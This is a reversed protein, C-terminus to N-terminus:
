QHTKLQIWEDYITILINLYKESLQYLDENDFLNNVIKYNDIEGETKEGTETIFSLFQKGEENPESINIERMKNIYDEANFNEPITHISSVVRHTEIPNKHITTTRLENIFKFLADEDATLKRNAYWQKFKKDKGFEKRLVWLISRSASIFASLYYRFEEDNYTEYFKLLFFKAEEIKGKTQTEM